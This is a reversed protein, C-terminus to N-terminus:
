ARRILYKKDGETVWELIGQHILDDMIQKRTNPQIDKTYTCFMRNTMKKGVPMSNTMRVRDRAYSTDAIDRCHDEVCMLHYDVLAKAWKVSNVTVIPRDNVYECACLSYKQIQEYARGLSTDILDEETIARRKNEIDKQISKLLAKADDTCPVKLVSSNEQAMAGVFNVKAMDNTTWSELWAIFDYIEKPFCDEPMVYDPNEIAIRDNTKVELITFRPVFGDKFDASSLQEFLRGPVSQGFIVLCPEKITIVDRKAANSYAGTTYATQARSYLELFEAGINRSYQSVNDGKINRLFHGIEDIYAYCIGDRNVLADILGADSKMKGILKNRIKEPANVMLWQAQDCVKGKGSGAPGVAILYNNTRANTFTRFKKAYCLSVFSTAAAVAFLDQQYMSTKKIWEYVPKIFGVPHLIIDMAEERGMADAGGFWGDMAKNLGEIAQASTEDDDWDSQGVYGNQRALFFLTSITIERPYQLSKYKKYCRDTGEYKGQTGKMSWENFLEFGVADGFGDQLALGIQVWQDYSYDADLVELAKKTEEVNADKYFKPAQIERKVEKKDFLGFLLEVTSIPLEPINDKDITLLDYKGCWKYEKGNPHISPPLVTQRGTSLFDIGAVGDESKVSKSPLGNFKYFATYGKAGRKKVPSTPLIKEIKRLWTEDDTDIDVACLNSATGLALGINNDKGIFLKATDVDMLEECYRNWGSLKPGKQRPALPVVSFGQALYRFANADWAVCAEKEEQKGVLSEFM